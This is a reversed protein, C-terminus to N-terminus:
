SNNREGSENNREKEIRQLKEISERNEVVYDLLSQVSAQFNAKFDKLEEQLSEILTNLDKNTRSVVTSVANLDYRIPQIKENLIKRSIADFDEQPDAINCLRKNGIDFNGEETLKFGRGPPGRKGSSSSKSLQQGFVNVSM